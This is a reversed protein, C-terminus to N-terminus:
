KLSELIAEKAANVAVLDLEASQILVAQIRKNTDLRGEAVSAALRDASLASQEKRKRDLFETLLETSGVVAVSANAVSSVVAAAGSDLSRLFTAM